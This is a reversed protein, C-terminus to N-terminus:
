RADGDLTAPHPRSPRWPDLRGASADATRLGHSRVPGHERPRHDGRGRSPLARLHGPIRRDIRRPKRDQTWPTSPHLDGLRRPRNTRESPEVRDGLMLPSLRSAPLWADWRALDALSTALGGDGCCTFQIDVRQSDGVWGPVADPGPTDLFRSHTMGAEAFLAHRAFSGLTEGSSREVVMALLVYGHNSYRHVAGPASEPETAAIAEFRAWTTLRSNVGWGIRADVANSDRLGGCHTLLHHLQVRQWSPSLEPLWRRISDGLGLRGDLM